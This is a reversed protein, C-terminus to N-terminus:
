IKRNTKRGQNFLHGEDEKNNSYTAGFIMLALIIITFLATASLVVGATEMDSLSVESSAQCCGNECCKHDPGCEFYASTGSFDHYCSGYFNYYNYANRRCDEQALLCRVFLILLTIGKYMVM